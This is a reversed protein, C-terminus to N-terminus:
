YGKGGGASLSPWGTKAEWGAKAYFQKGKITGTWYWLPRGPKSVGSVYRLNNVSNRLATWTFEARAFSWRPNTVAYWHPCTGDEENDWLWAWAPWHFNGTRADIRSFNGYALVACLPLGIIFLPINVLQILIFLLVYKM